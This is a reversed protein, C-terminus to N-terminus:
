DILWDGNPLPKETLRCRNYLEGSFTQNGLIGFIIFMFLLFLFVNAMQPLSLLLSAVLRKMSPVAKISRLPRLVRLTRLSKLSPISPIIALLGIIVVMFDILNWYDRLYSNKHLFFGMGIIKFFAEATYISTFAIDFKDM